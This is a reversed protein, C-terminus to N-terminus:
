NTRSVRWYATMTASSVAMPGRYQTPCCIQVAAMSYEWATVAHGTEYFHMTNSRKCSAPRHRPFMSTNHTTIVFHKVPTSRTSLLTLWLAFTAYTLGSVVITPFTQVNRTNRFPVRKMAFAIKLSRFMPHKEVDDWYQATVVTDYEGTGERQQDNCTSNGPWSLLDTTRHMNSAALHSPLPNDVKFGRTCAITMTYPFQGWRWRAHQFLFCNWLRAM